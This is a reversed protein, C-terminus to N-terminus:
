GRPQIRAINTRGLGISVDDQDRGKGECQTRIQTDPKLNGRKILVISNYQVLHDM